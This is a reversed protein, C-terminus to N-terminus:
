ATEGVPVADDEVEAPTDDLQFSNFRRYCLWSLVLAAALGILVPIAALFFLRQMTIDMGLLAAGAYPGLIAGFRGVSLAVGVGKGRINTPYLLGAAANNGSQAGLITVGAMGSALALGFFPMGDFGLLAISPVAILFLAAVILFGARDLLMAIVLGGFTGGAHYWTAVLAAEQPDIGYKDFILPITNNLFFNAMLAITYCVWLLPTIQALGGKLLEKVKGESGTINPPNIFVADDAIRLDTRMKRATAILEGRRRPNIALLKLSEPLFFFLGIAVLIPLVGGAHFIVPWGYTPMFYAAILGVAASGTTIGMFMLIIMMSRYKKPTLESNLSITNPMIGGIGIGAIFRLAMMQEMTTTHAMLLTVVGYLLTGGIILPRRGYKDGLWGLLPAGLFIGYLNASLVSGMASRDVGWERTLDPAAFGLSNLDFGDAFMTLFSWVLLLINFKRIRQGDVFENVQLTQIM